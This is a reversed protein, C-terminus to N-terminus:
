DEEEMGVSIGHFGYRRAVDRLDVVLQPRPAPGANGRRVVATGMVVLDLEFSTHSTDNSEWEEDRGRRDVRVGVVGDAKFHHAFARFRQVALDRAAMSAQTHAVLESSFWSGESACDAHRVYWFCNGIAIAVPWYGAQHLKWLEDASLLTLAPQQPPPAGDAASRGGL